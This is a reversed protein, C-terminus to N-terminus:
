GHSDGALQDSQEIMRLLRLKTDGRSEQLRRLFAEANVSDLSYRGGMRFGEVRYWLAKVRDYLTSAAKWSPIGGVLASLEQCASCLEGQAAEIHDLAKQVRARAEAQLLAKQNDSM